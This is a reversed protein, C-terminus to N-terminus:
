GETLILKGSCHGCVYRNTDLKKKRKYVEKCEICIYTIIRNIEEKKGVNGSSTFLVETGGVKIFYNKLIRIEISIARGEQHLHYHCLEHKIIGMLEDMGLQELYKKNM